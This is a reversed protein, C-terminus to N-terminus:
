KKEKLNESVTLQISAEKLRAARAIEAEKLREAEAAKERWIQLEAEALKDEDEAKALDTTLDHYSRRLDEHEAVKRAAHKEHEEVENEHEIKEAHYSKRLEDHINTHVMSKQLFTSKRLEEANVHDNELEEIQSKLMAEKELLANEAKKSKYNEVELETKERRLRTNEDRKSDLLNKLSEQERQVKELEYNDM